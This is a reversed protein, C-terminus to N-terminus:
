RVSKIPLPKVEKAKRIAGIASQDEVWTSLDEGLALFVTVSIVNGSDEKIEKQERKLRGAIFFKSIEENDNHSKSNRLSSILPAGNQIALEPTSYGAKHPEPTSWSSGRDLSYELRWEPGQLPELSALRVLVGTPTPPSALLDIYLGTLAALPDPLAPTIAMLHYYLVPAPVPIALPLHQCTLQM